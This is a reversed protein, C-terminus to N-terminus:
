SEEEKPYLSIQVAGHERNQYLQITWDSDVRFGEKLWSPRVANELLTNVLTEPNVEFHIQEGSVTAM